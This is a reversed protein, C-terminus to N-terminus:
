KKMLKYGFWDPREGFEKQLNRILKKDECEWVIRDYYFPESYLSTREDYCDISLVRDGPPEIEKTASLSNGKFTGEVWGRPTLHYEQYERSLSM